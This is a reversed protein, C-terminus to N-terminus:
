KENYFNYLKLVQKAAKAIEISLDNKLYGLMELNNEPLINRGPYNWIALLCTAKLYNYKDKNCAIGYHWEDLYTYLQNLMDKYDDICGTGIVGRIEMINGNFHVLHLHEFSICEDISYSYIIKDEGFEIEAVPTIWFENIKQSFLSLPIFMLVILYKM